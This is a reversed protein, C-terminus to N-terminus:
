NEQVKRGSLDYVQGNKRIYIKGNKIFKGDPQPNYNQTDKIGTATNNVVDTFTKETPAGDIAITDPEEEHPRGDLPPIWQRVIDNELAYMSDEFQQSYQEFSSQANREINENTARIMSDVYVYMKSAEHAYEERSMSDPNIALFEQIKATVKLICSDVINNVIPAVITGAVKIENPSRYTADYKKFANDYKEINEHMEKQAKQAYTLVKQTILEKFKANDINDFNPVDTLFELKEPSNIANQLEDFNSVAQRITEQRVNYKQEESMKDYKKQAEVFQKHVDEPYPKENSSARTATKSDDTKELLDGIQSEKVGFYSLVKALEGNKSEIVGNGDDIGAANIFNQVYQKFQSISFDAM